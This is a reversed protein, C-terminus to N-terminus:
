FRATPYDPRYCYHPQSRFGVLGRWQTITDMDSWIPCMSWITWIAKLFAFLRPPLSDASVLWVASPPRARTRTPATGTVCFTGRRRTSATTISSGARSSIRRRCTTVSPRRRLTISASATSTSPTWRVDEPGKYKHIDELLRGGCRPGQYKHVADLLRGGRQRGPGQYKHVADLPRGGRQHGPGQYKHVADLPREGARHEPVQPRSGPFTRMSGPVQSRRGPYTWWARPGPVQPRREASTWWAPTRGGPLASRVLAGAAEDSLGCWIQLSVLM